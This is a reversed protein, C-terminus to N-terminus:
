PDKAATDYNVSEVASPGSSPRGAQRTGRTSNVSSGIEGNSCITLTGDTGAIPAANETVTVTATANVCPALGTVTYTYVGPDMTSLPHTGDFCPCANSM